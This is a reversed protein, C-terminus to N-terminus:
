LRKLLELILRVGVGTAGKPIYPKEATKEQTWATGAIDLHAWPTDEAFSGLFAAATIAGGPRGGVNKIDAVESKIQDYYEKWLPLRWVREGVIESVEEIKRLLKDDNGMLGSAHNGLAIVCAGTLTALDIIAKPKYVDRAYAIADALVLRGEADTSIIESTKGGYHKIIDGPKYAKGSPMNEVAPLIGIVHVPLKLISLAKIIGLIAAGGSKDYKMEEMGQPTKLSLGGSDFTITKGIIVIPKDDSGKYEIIILKPENDSGRGVALIGGMGLKKMESTDFVKVPLNYQSALDLALKAIKEPTADSSPTNAVDRALKVGEAYASGFMAGRKVEDVFKEDSLLDLTEVVSKKAKPKYKTFKYLALEAGEVIAQAVYSPELGKDIGFVIIGYEKIKLKDAEKAAQGSAIRVSEIGFDKREGLGVLLLRRAGIKGYTHLVYSTKLEGEFEGSSIIESIVGELRKNLDSLDTPLGEKKYVPIVLMEGKFELPKITLVNIKM